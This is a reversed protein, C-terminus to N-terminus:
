EDFGALHRGVTLRTQTQHTHSNTSGCWSQGMEHCWVYLSARRIGRWSLGLLWIVILQADMGDARQGDIGHLLPIELWGRVAIAIAGTTQV